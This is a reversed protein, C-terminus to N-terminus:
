LWQQREYLVLCVCAGADDSESISMDASAEDASKEVPSFDADPSSVRAEDRGLASRSADDPQDPQEPEQRQQQQRAAQAATAAARQEQEQQLRKEAALAAAAEQRAREDRRWQNQQRYYEGDRQRGGNGDRSLKYDLRLLFRMAKESALAYATARQAHEGRGIEVGDIVFSYAHQGDDRTVSYDMQKSLVQEVQNRVLKNWFTAFTGELVERPDGSDGDGDGGRRMDGAAWDVEQYVLRWGEAQTLLAELVQRYLTLTASDRLRLWSRGGVRVIGEGNAFEVM